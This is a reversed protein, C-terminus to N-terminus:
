DAVMAEASQGPPEGHRQLIQRWDIVLKGVDDHARLFRPDFGIGTFGPHFHEPGTRFGSAPSREEAPLLAVDCCWVLVQRIGVREDQFAFQLHAVAHQFGAVVVVLRVTYQVTCSGRELVGLIQEHALSGHEEVVFVTEGM